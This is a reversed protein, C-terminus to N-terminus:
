LLVAVYVLSLFLFAHIAVMLIWLSMECRSHRTHPLALEAVFVFSYSTFIILNWTVHTKKSALMTRLFRTCWKRAMKSLRKLRTTVCVGQFFEQEKICGKRLTGVREGIGNVLSEMGDDCRICGESADTALPPMAAFAIQGCFFVLLGLASAFAVDPLTQSIRLLISTITNEHNTMNTDM